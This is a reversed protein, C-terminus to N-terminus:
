SSLSEKVLLLLLLKGKDDDSNPRKRRQVIYFVVVLLILLVGGGMSIGVILRTRNKKGTSSNNCVGSNSIQVFVRTLMAHSKSFM